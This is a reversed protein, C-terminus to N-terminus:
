SIDEEDAQVEHDADELDEWYENEAKNLLFDHFAPENGLNDIYEMCLDLKTGIGWGQHAFKKYLMEFASM